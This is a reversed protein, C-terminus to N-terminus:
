GEIILSNVLIEYASELVDEGETSAVIFILGIGDRNFVTIERTSQTSEDDTRSTTYTLANQGSFTTSELESTLERDPEQQLRQAVISELTLAPVARQPQQEPPLEGQPQEGSPPQGGPPPPPVQDVTFFKDILSMEAALKPRNVGPPAFEASVIIIGLNTPALGGHVYYLPPEGWIGTYDDESIPASLSYTNTAVDYQLREFGHIFSFWEFPYELSFGFQANEYYFTADPAPFGDGSDSLPEEDIAGASITLSEKALTFVPEMSGYPTTEFLLVINSTSTDGSATIALGRGIITEDDNEYSYDFQLAPQGALTIEAVSDPQIMAEISETLTQGSDAVEVLRLTTQGSPSLYVFENGTAQPQQHWNAPIGLGVRADNTSIEQMIWQYVDAGMQEAHTPQTWQDDFAMDYFPTDPADLGDSIEADISNRIFVVGIGKDELYVATAEGYIPQNGILSTYRLSIAERDHFTTEIFDSRAGINSRSGLDPRERGQESQLKQQILAMPGQIGGTDSIATLGEVLTDKPNDVNPVLLLLYEARDDLSRIGAELITPPSWQSRPYRLEVGADGYAQRWSQQSVSFGDLMLEFLDTYLRDATEQPAEFWIAYVIDTEAAYTVYLRGSIPVDDDRTITYVAVQWAYHEGSYQRRDTETFDEGGVQIEDLLLADLISETDEVGYLQTIAAFTLENRNKNLAFGSWIGNDFTNPLWTNYVPLQAPEGIIASPRNISWRTWQSDLSPPDFLILTDQLTSLNTEVDFFGAFEEPVMPPAPVAAFVLYNRPATPILIGQSPLQFEFGETINFIYGDYGDVVVPILDDMSTAEVANIVPNDRVLYELMQLPDTEEFGMHGPYFYNVMGATGSRDPHVAFDAIGLPSGLTGTQYRLIFGDEAATYAQLRETDDGIEDNDIKVPVSDFGTNGGFATVLFGLEYNGSPAPATQIFVGDKHWIYTQHPERQLGGDPTVTYQYTQFTAGAPIEVVGAVSSGPDRAIASVGASRSIVIQPFSFGYPVLPQRYLVIPLNDGPSDPLGGIIATLIQLYEYKNPETGAMALLTERENERRMDNAFDLNAVAITDLLEDLAIEDLTEETFDLALFQEFTSRLIDLTGDPMEFYAYFSGVQNFLRNFEAGGVEPQLTEFELFIRQLAAEGPTRDFLIGVDNWEEDSNTRYRGELYLVDDSNIVVLEYDTTTGDTVTMLKGDWREERADVGAQWQNEKVDTGFDDAYHTLMPRSYVRVTTDDDQVWDVTFEGEAILRGVVELNIVFPKFVGGIDPVVRTVAVTPSVPAHFTFTEDRTWVQPTLTNYYTQLMLAWSQLPTKEIYENDFEKLAEPFYINYYSTSEVAREGADGYVLAGNLADLIAQAAEIVDTDTTRNIVQEIFDGADILTFNGTGAPYGYTNARAQGLLSAHRLMDDTMLQAFANLAADVEGFRALNTVSNTLYKISTGATQVMDFEMYHFVLETGISELDAESGAQLATAFLSMDLAPNVVVEPSAFSYGFYDKMVSYYELSSMLCADNILLAFQAQNTTTLALDFAAKLESLELITVNGLDATTGESAPATEDTILGEWAAGHSGFAVAYNQAPYQQMGWVLFQALTEGSGTDLDGLYALEQTDLTAVETEEYDASEDASIEFLKVGTWDEPDSVYHVPSRDILAIIRVSDNSGGAREFEDLDDILAGELNTDAGYYVLITWDAMAAPDPEPYGVEAITEPSVDYDDYTQAVYPSIAITLTFDGSTDGQTLKYRTAVVTYNGAQLGPQRLSSLTQDGRSADDNTGIIVGLSDLLYILTDLNGGTRQMIIEVTSNDEEVVFSVEHFMVDDNITGTIPALDDQATIITLSLLLIIATLPRTRFM